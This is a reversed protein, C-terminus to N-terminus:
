TAKPGQRGLILLQEMQEVIRHWRGSKTPVATTPIAAQVWQGCCFNRHPLTSLSAPRRGVQPSNTPRTSTPTFNSTVM